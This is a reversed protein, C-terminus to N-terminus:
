EIQLTRSESQFGRFAVAGPLASDITENLIGQPTVPTKNPVGSKKDVTRGARALTRANIRPMERLM